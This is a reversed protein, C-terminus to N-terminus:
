HPLHVFAREIVEPKGLEPMPVLFAMGYENAAQISKDDKISGLPAVACTVGSIGALDMSDRDPFFADSTMVTGKSTGEKCRTNSYYVALSASDIRSDQGRGVGVTRYPTGLTVANSVIFPMINWNFLAAELENATPQRNSVSQFNGASNVRSQFRKQVLLGGELKIYQYDHDVLKTDLSPVKVVRLDPKKSFVDLAGPTYDPAIVCEFFRTTMLKATDADVQDSFSVVGGFAALSNTDWADNYAQFVSGSRATGSPGVHKSVSAAAYSPFLEKIRKVIKLGANLDLINIFGLKKDKNEQLIEYEAVGPGTSGVEAYLAAPTGPNEGYKMARLKKFLVDGIPIEEPFDEAVSSRYQSRTENVM